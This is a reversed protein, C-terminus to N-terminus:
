MHLCLVPICVCAPLCMCVCMCVHRFCMHVHACMCVLVDTCACVHVCVSNKELYADLQVHLCLLIDLLGCLIAATTGEPFSEPHALPPMSAPPRRSKICNSFTKLNTLSLFFRICNFVCGEARMASFLSFRAQSSRLLKFLARLM